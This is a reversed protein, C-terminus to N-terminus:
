GFATEMAKSWESIRTEFLSEDIRVSLDMSASETFDFLDVKDGAAACLAEYLATSGTIRVRVGEADSLAAQLAEALAAVSRRAIDDTLLPGLIQSVVTTVLGTVTEQVTAFEASIRGALTEGAERALTEAEGAHREREAELMAEYQATLRETLDAEAREVAERIREEFDEAVPTSPQLEITPFADVTDDEPFAFPPMELARAPPSGFDELFDALAPKRM